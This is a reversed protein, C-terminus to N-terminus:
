NGLFMLLTMSTFLRYQHKNNILAKTDYVIRGRIWWVEYRPNTEGHFAPGLPFIFIEIKRTSYQALIMVRSNDISWRAVRTNKYITFIRTYKKMDRPYLALSTPFCHYLGEKPGQFIPNTEHSRPPSFSCVFPPIIMEKAVSTKNRRERERV